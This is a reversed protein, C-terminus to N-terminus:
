GHKDPNLRNSTQNYTGRVKTQDLEWFEGADTLVLFFLYDEIGREIICLIRGEAQMHPIYCGIPNNLETITAM